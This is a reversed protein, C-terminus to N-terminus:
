GVAAPSLKGSPWGGAAIFTQNTPYIGAGDIWAKPVASHPKSFSRVASCTGEADYQRELRGGSSWSLWSVPRWPSSSSKM